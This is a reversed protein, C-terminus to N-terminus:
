PGLQTVTLDDILAEGTGTLILNIVLRQDHDAARHLVFQRWGSTWSIREALAEGGLSDLIMLGDSSDEIRNPVNVWGTIRLM